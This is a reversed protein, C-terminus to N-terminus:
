KQPIKEKALRSLIVEDAVKAYFVEDDIVAYSYWSDGIRQYLVDTEVEKASFANQTKSIDKKSASM